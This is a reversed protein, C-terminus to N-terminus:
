VLPTRVADFLARVAKPEVFASDTTSLTLGVDDTFASAFDDPLAPHPDGTM